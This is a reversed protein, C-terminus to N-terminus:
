NQPDWELDRMARAVAELGSRDTDDFAAYETSDIDLVAQLRGARDVIPVVIESNSRSDCAIHGPFAHVDEVVVTECRTACAGCVGRDFSIELCAPTGQYPGILLTGRVARYFGVWFFDFKQRLISTVTAMWVIPDHQDELTAHIESLADTYHQRKDMTM